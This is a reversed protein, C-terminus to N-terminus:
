PRELQSTRAPSRPWIRSSERFRRLPPFADLEAGGRPREHGHALSPPRPASLSEWHSVAFCDFSDRVLDFFKAFCELSLFEFRVFQLLEFFRPDSQIRESIVEFLSDESSRKLGAHGLVSSFVWFNLSSIDLM